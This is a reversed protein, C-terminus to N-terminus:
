QASSKRVPRVPWHDLSFDERVGSTPFTIDSIVQKYEWASSWDLHLSSTSLSPLSTDVCLKSFPPVCAWYTLVGVHWTLSSKCYITLDVLNSIISTIGSIKWIVTQQMVAYKQLVSYSFPSYILVSIIKHHKSSLSILTLFCKVWSKFLKVLFKM